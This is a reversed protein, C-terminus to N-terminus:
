NRFDRVEEFNPNIRLKSIDFHSQMSTKENWRNPRFFQLVMMLPEVRGDDLYPLIQDVMDGSLLCGI